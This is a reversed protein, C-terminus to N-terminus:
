QRDFVGNFVLGLVKEQTILNLTEELMKRPTFDAKIVILYGDVVRSILDTDPLQLVQPTDLIVFDYCQRAQELLDDLRPSKLLEYPLEAKGGPFMLDLNFGPLRRIIREMGLEANGIWDVVGPGPLAKLDLYDSINSGPVRLDLDVLLIRAKADRALAGALNIATLTKGDGEGPSTVGVVFGRGPQRQTELALRLRSYSEAEASRPRLLCVLRPNISVGNGEKVPAKGHLPLTTVPQSTNTLAGIMNKVPNMIKERKPAPM